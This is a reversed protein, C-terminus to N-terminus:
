SRGRQTPPMTGVVLLWALEDNIGTKAKVAEVGFGSVALLRAKQQQPTGVADVRKQTEARLRAASNSAREMRAIKAPDYDTM